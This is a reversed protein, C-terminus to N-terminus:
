GSSHQQVLFHIFIEQALALQNTYVGLGKHSYLCKFCIDDGFVYSHRILDFRARRRYEGQDEPINGDEM